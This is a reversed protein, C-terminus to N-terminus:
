NFAQHPIPWSAAFRRGTKDAKSLVAFRVFNGTPTSESLRSFSIGLILESIELFLGYLLFQYQRISPNLNGPDGGFGGAQDQFNVL